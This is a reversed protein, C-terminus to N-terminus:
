QLSNTVTCTMMSPYVDHVEVFERELRLFDYLRSLISSGGHLM